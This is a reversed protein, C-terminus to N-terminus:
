DEGAMQRLINVGGGSEADSAQQRMGRMLPRAFGWNNSNSNTYIPRASLDADVNLRGSVADLTIMDGDVIQGIAGGAVSEPCLHIAAPVVGSAGSMRGDTVLAVKFGKDQLTSLLPTLSHLEPMGCARPGQGRVVIVCDKELAGNQYAEKVGAENDFVIAPATIRHRNEEVASIKIVARGLNGALVKLGGSPAHPRAPPRLIEEDASTDPADRWAIDNGSLMPEVLCDALNEGFVSAASGDLLGEEMLARMVFGVGGAAHFQNVDATGNPYVRALLPIIESLDAFDEWRLDIGAAAAMAPLHLTHNTSGGTAHLGIIANIFSRADLLKGLPRPNDSRRHIAVAQHVAKSTMAHRLDSHPHQFAAGPLHLGMIEMLMQNSNATGYFTCTGASHYAASEAKLLTARDVEGKAFQKRIQAKEANPLGSEMPGAPVFIVPLHGFALAGMVLGPVIKDCVGLCLAADYVNHSLGVATAMAIIDRSPLSLEMGPRGQTVGDCMAPVGGAVQATAGVERASARILAPYNEFPQHASLMDNYATIIAINPKPADGQGAQGAEQGGAEHGLLADKDQGGAAAVHAMNSCGIAARDSDAAADMSDIDALYAARSSASREQVRELVRAIKTHLPKM